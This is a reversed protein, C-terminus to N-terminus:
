EKQKAWLAPENKVPIMRGMDSQADPKDGPAPTLVLGEPLVRITFSREQTGILKLENGNRRLKGAQVEGKQPVYGFTGAADIVLCNGGFMYSGAIDKVSNANEAKPAVVAPLQPQAPITPPLAVPPRVVEAVPPTFLPRGLKRWKSEYVWLVTRDLHTPPMMGLLSGETLRDVHEHQRRRLKLDHDKEDYHFFRKVEGSTLTMDEDTARVTGSVHAGGPGYLDFSRDSRMTLVFTIQEGDLYFTHYLKERNEDSCRASVAALLLLVMALSKRM